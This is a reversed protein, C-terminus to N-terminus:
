TFKFNKISLIANVSLLIPVSAKLPFSNKNITSQKELFAKLKNIHPSVNSLIELVPMLHELSLPFSDSMYITAVVNKTYNKLLRKQNMSMKEFERKTKASMVKDNGNTKEKNKGTEEKAFITQVVAQYCEIYHM